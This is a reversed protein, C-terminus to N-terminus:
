TSGGFFVDTQFVAKKVHSYQNCVSTNNLHYAESTSLINQIVRGPANFTVLHICPPSKFGSDIRLTLESSVVSNADRGGCLLLLGDSRASATAYRPICVFFRISFRTWIADSWAGSYHSWINGSRVGFNKLDM